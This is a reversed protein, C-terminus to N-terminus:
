QCSTKMKSTGIDGNDGYVSYGNFSCCTIFLFDELVYAAIPVALLKLSEKGNDGNVIERKPSLPFKYFIM